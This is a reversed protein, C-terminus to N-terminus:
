WHITVEFADDVIEFVVENPSLSPTPSSLWPKADCKPVLVRTYKFMQRSAVVGNFTPVIGEVVNNAKGM